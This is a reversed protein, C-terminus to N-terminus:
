RSGKRGCLHAQLSPQHSRPPGIRGLTLPLLGRRRRGRRHLRDDQARAPPLLLAAHRPQRHRGPVLWPQRGSFFSKM